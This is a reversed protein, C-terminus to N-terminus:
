KVEVIIINEFPIATANKVIDKITITQSALLGDSAVLINATGNELFALCGTFGKAKLMSEIKSEQEINKAIAALQDVAQKKAKEDSDASKVAQQLLETAEDRAKQRSLSAETFYSEASKTMSETPAPSAANGSETGSELSFTSTVTESGNVYQADGINPQSVSTGTQLASPSSFRWNIYVATGLALVLAALVIHRKEIM